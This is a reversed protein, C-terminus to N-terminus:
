NRVEINRNHDKFTQRMEELADNIDATSSVHVKTISGNRLLANKLSRVGNSGFKGNTLAVKQLSTNLAICESILHLGEDSLKANRTTTPEENENDNENQRDDDVSTIFDIHGLDLEKITKSSSITHFFHKGAEGDIYIVASIIKLKEIKPSQDIYHSLSATFAADFDINTLGLTPITSPLSSILNAAKDDTLGKWGYFDDFDFDLHSEMNGKSITMLLEKWLVEDKQELCGQLARPSIAFYARLSNNLEVYKDHVQLPVDDLDNARGVIANLIHTRDSDVSAEANTIETKLSSLILQFPFHQERNITYSQRGIDTVTGGPVLGVADRKETQGMWKEVHDHDHATYICWTANFERQEDKATLTKHLEYICWIRSFVVGGKDLISITGKSLRMAKNFASQSPDNTVDGSIDHQNIAYACIWFTTTDPVNFDRCFQEICKIFDVVPEGWWHSVFYDPIRAESTICEVFSKRAKYTYPKIVYKTTDYLTVQDPTLKNGQWDEWGEEECRRKIHIGVARLERLSLPREEALPIGKIVKSGDGADPRNRGEMSVEETQKWFTEYSYGETFEKFDATEAM